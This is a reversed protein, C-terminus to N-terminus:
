KLTLEDNEIKLKLTFYMAIAIIAFLCLSGILLALKGLYLLILIIGYEVLMTVTGTVVAKSLHTIGHLFWGILGVVMATVLVYAVAFPMLETFSVLLLYFVFLTAAILGYQVFSINKRFAIEVLVLTLMTIAELLFCYSASVDVRAGDVTSLLDMSERTSTLASIGLALMAFAVSLVGIIISRNVLWSKTYVPQAPM